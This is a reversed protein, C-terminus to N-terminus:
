DRSTSSTTGGNNYVPAPFIGINALEILSKQSLHAQYKLVEKYTDLQHVLDQSNTYRGNTLQLKCVTLEKEHVQIIDKIHMEHGTHLSSIENQHHRIIEEIKAEYGRQCGQMQLDHDRKLKDIVTDSQRALKRNSERDSELKVVMDKQYNIIDNLRRIEKRDKEFANAIPKSFDDLKAGVSHSWSCTRKDHHDGVLHRLCRYKWYIGTRDLYGYERM